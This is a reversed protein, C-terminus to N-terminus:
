AASAVREAARVREARSRDHAWRVSGPRHAEKALTRAVYRSVQEKIWGGSRGGLHLSRAVDDTSAAQYLGLTRGISICQAFFGVEVPKPEEGALRSLVTEAAQLGLPIAAQCSMRMPLGSPNAADGAAVIRDDDVSTLTENTLLRGVADTALGSSRALEPTSFGTTWVTLASPVVTGDALTVSSNGVTVVTAGDHMTVGLRRLSAAASRRGSPHLYSNLVDCVLTVDRGSEALEGAVEIGTPGGGVVTVPATSPLSRLRAALREAEDITAVTVAHEAVGPVGGAVRGSGVAYVLYDYGRVGGSRLTLARSGADIRDVSDIVLEVDRNLVERYDRRADYSGVAHQHLRIRDVFQAGASILTVAVDDRTLLRNAAVVGAYGGGIVAVQHRAM